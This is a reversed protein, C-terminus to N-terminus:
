HVAKMLFLFFVIQKVPFLCCLRQPPKNRSGYNFQGGSKKKKKHTHAKARLKQMERTSPRVTLSVLDTQNVLCRRGALVAPHLMVAASVSIWHPLVSQTLYLWTMILARWWGTSSVCKDSHQSLSQQLSPSKLKTDAWRMCVLLPKLSSGVKVTLIQFTINNVLHLQTHAQSWIALPPELGTHFIGNPDRRASYGVSSIIQNCLTCYAM